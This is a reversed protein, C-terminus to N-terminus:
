KLRRLAAMAIITIVDWTPSIPPAYCTEVNALDQLTNKNQIACALINIRQAVQEEGIMQAGLILGNDTRYIIKFYIEKGGPFYVPLSTGKGLTVAIPADIMEEAMNHTLGVGAIELGFLKTVRNSMADQMIMNGGAANVGAVMGQRVALTGLGGIVRKKTLFDISEICDGAAYIDPINTEMRENTIIGRNSGIEIGSEQSLQTDPRIGAAVILMDVEHTTEENTIRNSLTVRYKRDMGKVPE